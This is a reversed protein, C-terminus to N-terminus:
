SYYTVKSLFQMLCYDVDLTKRIENEYNTTKIRIEVLTKIIFKAANTWNIYNVKYMKELHFMM